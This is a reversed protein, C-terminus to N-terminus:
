QRQVVMTVDKARNTLFYTHQGQTLTTSSPCGSQVLRLLVIPNVSLLEDVTIGKETFCNGYTSMWYLKDLLSYNISLLPFGVKCTFPGSYTYGKNRGILSKEGKLQILNEGNQLLECHTGSKHVNL